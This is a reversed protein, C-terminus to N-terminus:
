WSSGAALTAGGFFSVLGCGKKRPFSALIIEKSGKSVVPRANCAVAWGIGEGDGVSSLSGIILGESFRCFDESGESLSIRVESGFKESRDTLDFVMCGGFDKCGNKMDRVAEISDVTEVPADEIASKGSGADPLVTYRPFPLSAGNGGRPIFWIRPLEGM